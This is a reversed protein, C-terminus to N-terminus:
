SKRRLRCRCTGQPLRTAKSRYALAQDKHRPESDTRQGNTRPATSRPGPVESSWSGLVLRPGVCIRPVCEHALSHSDEEQVTTAEVVIHSAACCGCRPAVLWIAISASSMAPTTVLARPGSAPTHTIASVDSM